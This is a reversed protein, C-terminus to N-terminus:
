QLTEGDARGPMRIAQIGDDPESRATKKPRPVYGIRETEPVRNRIEYTLLAELCLEKQEITLAVGNPWKGLEVSEKLRRYLDPTLSSAMQEFNM